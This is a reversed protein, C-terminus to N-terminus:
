KDKLLSVCKRCWSMITEPDKRRRWTTVMTSRGCGDCDGDKGKEIKIWEAKM